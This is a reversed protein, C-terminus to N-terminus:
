AAAALRGDRESTVDRAPRAAREVSVEHGTLGVVALGGIALSAGLVLNEVTPRSFVLSAVITWASILAILAAAYVSAVSTRDIYAKGAAVTLTGISIGFALTATAASSFSVSAVVLFAAAVGLALWSLFRFM